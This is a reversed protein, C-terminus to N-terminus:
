TGSELGTKARRQMMTGQYTVLLDEWSRTDEYRARPCSRLFPSATEASGVTAPLIALSCHARRRFINITKGRIPLSSQETSQICCSCQSCVRVFYCSLQGRAHHCTLSKPSPHQFHLVTYSLNFSRLPEFHQATWLAV